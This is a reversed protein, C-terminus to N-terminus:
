ENVKRAGPRVVVIKSGVGNHKAYKNSENTIETMLDSSFVTFVDLLSTANPVAPGVPSTFFNITVSHLTYLLGHPPSLPLILVM